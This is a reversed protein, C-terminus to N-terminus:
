SGANPDYPAIWPALLASLAIAVLLGGAVLTTPDRSLRWAVTRWYSAPAGAVAATDNPLAAVAMQPRAIRPDVLTQLVDVALNLLVFFTALVLIVGQLVPIDRQFIALNLLYGTGPWSFVSEVLVSGGLQFGFQLGLVTFIQPAANKVV